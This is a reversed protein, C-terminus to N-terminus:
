GNNAELAARGASDKAKLIDDLLSVCLAKRSPSLSDWFDMSGGRQGHAYEHSWVAMALRAEAHPNLNRRAREHEHTTLKM